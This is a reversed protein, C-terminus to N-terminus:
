KGNQFCGTFTVTQANDGKVASAQNPTPTQAYIAGGFACGIVVALAVISRSM